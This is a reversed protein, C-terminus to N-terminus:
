VESADVVVDFDVGLTDFHKEACEIKEAESPRLKTRDKNGKTERVLYVKSDNHKVIAWDPNYEGIPTEVTFWRPLKLFLKVDERKDLAEAFKKEISSDYVIYEYISKKVALRNSLYSEIEKQKFLEMQFVEGAIKEYKIGDIILKQKERNILRAVQELFKQPNVFFEGLQGSEKLIMVLTRRTLETERQLYSLIDPLPGIYTSVQEGVKTVDGYVGRNDVTLTAETYRIKISEIQPMKNLMRACNEILEATDYEVKFTTKQRIKEWLDKFDENLDQEVLEKESKLRLKKPEEDRKIHRDLQHSEITQIIEAEIASDIYKVGLKFDPASPNFKHTIRGKKDLIGSTVLDEWILASRVRGIKDESDDEGAHLQSFAYKSIKGFTVGCDEEYEKQLTKAFEEYSENAVVTLKNIVPDFLRDGEQNVPLRLGRGIEQRKKLTSKTENLTCIQFVNPNDWGERLASHTFIFKLPDDFSLLKEKEKMIRGYTNYDLVTAGNTDKMVGKNDQSFYGDHIMSVDFKNLEQYQRETILESYQAEFIRAFKGKAPKGSEDYTRYNHVRDIFFLTLVKVGKERLQLEKDLHKQITNRIQNEVIEERMGGKTEGLYVRGIGFEIYENGKEASIQQVIYGDKYHARENSLNYLDHGLKVWFDKEKVSDKQQVHITVKARFGSRNDVENLKVFAENLTSSSSVQAVVIQKVLKLDFARIPDLKYVQNYVKRHTASYRFTCIPTLSKIAEQSKPTSDVSQPEDIIVFPKTSQIFEIPKRGSLKDNEKFMINSKKENESDSFDKRFSDINIIMIQIQNSTAFGRLKNAKKGDYVFYEFEVNNYLTRFHDRTIEINKLTGERIAISPVVIIFKKFGYKKNLEFVTRLYVYTKGTGTEMEVTFNLGNSVFEDFSSIDLDNREQINILNEFIVEESIELRNGFGLETQILANPYTQIEISFDGKNLPQGDFLDVISSIAELQFQQSGDFKLKM